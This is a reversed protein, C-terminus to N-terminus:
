SHTPLVYCMGFRSQTNMKKIQQLNKWPSNEDCIEHRNPTPETQSRNDCQRHLRNSTSPTMVITEQTREM